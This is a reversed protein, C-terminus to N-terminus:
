DKIEVNFIGVGLKRSDSNNKHVYKPVWVTDSFIELWMEDEMLDIELDQSRKIRLGAKSVVSGKKADVVYINVKKKLPNSVSFCLKRGKEGKVKILSQGMNWRFLGNKTNEVKHWGNCFVESSEILSNAEDDKKLMKPVEIKSDSLGADSSELLLFGIADDPSAIKMDELNRMAMGNAIDFVQRGDQDLNKLFLYIWEDLSEDGYEEYEKLYDIVSNVITFRLEAHVNEFFKSFRQINAAKTEMGVHGDVKIFDNLAKKSMGDYDIDGCEIGHLMVGDAKLFGKLREIVEDKDEFAIHGFVDLSVVYDFYNKEYDFDKIDGIFVDDYGNGKAHDLAKASFDVGVIECGKNKLASLTGSGCGFDLVRSGAKIKSYMWLMKFCKVDFFNMPDKTFDFDGNNVFKEKYFESVDNIGVKEYM